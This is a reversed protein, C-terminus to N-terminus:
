HVGKFVDNLLVILLQIKGSYNVHKEVGNMGCDYCSIEYLCATDDYYCYGLAKEYLACVYGKASTAQYM